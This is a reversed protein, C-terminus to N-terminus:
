DIFLRNVMINEKIDRTRDYKFTVPNFVTKSILKLSFVKLEPILRIDIYNTSKWFGSWKERQARRPLNKNTQLLFGCLM